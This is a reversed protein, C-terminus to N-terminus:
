ALLAIGEQTLQLFDVVFLIDVGVQLFLACLGMMSVAIGALRGKSLGSELLGAFM